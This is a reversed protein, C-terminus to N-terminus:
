RCLTQESLFYNYVDLLFITGYKYRKRGFKQKESGAQEVDRRVKECFTPKYFNFTSFFLPLRQKIYKILWCSKIPCLFLPLSDGIM